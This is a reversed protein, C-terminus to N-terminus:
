QKEVTWGDGTIWCKCVYPAKKSFVISKGDAAISGRTSTITSTNASINAMGKGLYAIGEYLNYITGSNDDVIAIDITVPASGETLNIKWTENANKDTGEFALVKGGGSATQGKLKIGYVSIYKGGVCWFNYEIEENEEISFGFAKGDTTIASMVTDYSESDLFDEVLSFPVIFHGLGYVAKGENTYDGGVEMYIFDYKSLTEYPIYLNQGFGINKIDVGVDGVSDLKQKDEASMLGSMLPTANTSITNGAFRKLGSQTKINVSM